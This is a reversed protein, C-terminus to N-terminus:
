IRVWEKLITCPFNSRSMQHRGLDIIILAYEYVTYLTQTYQSINLRNYNSCRFHKRFHMNRVRHVIRGPWTQKRRQTIKWNVYNRISGEHNGMLNLFNSTKILPMNMTYKYSNSVLFVTFFLSGCLPCKFLRYSQTSDNYCVLLSNTKWGHVPKIHPRAWHSYPM